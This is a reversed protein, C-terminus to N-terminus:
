LYFIGYTSNKRSLKENEFAFDKVKNFIEKVEMFSLKLQKRREWDIGFQNTQM